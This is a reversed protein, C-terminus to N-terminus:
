IQDNNLVNEIIKLQAYPSYKKAIKKYCNNRITTRNYKSFKLWSFLTKKLSYFDDYFYFDGTLGREIIEVEPAQKSLDDHTIVPTGFTVSHIAALGVHGPSAFVDAYYIFKSTIEEAYCEGFLTIKEQLNNQDIFKRLEPKIEGEGIIFVNCFIGESNLELVCEILKDVRKRYSLRGIFLIVPYENDFYERYPNKNNVEIRSILRLHSEYDLSNYIVHLKECPFGEEIMYKKAREGYLLVGDSLKFFLKKIIKKLYGEDGYWAHSWLYIKKKLIQNIVLILWTSLNYYEGLIIYKKYDKFLLSLAGKQWKIPGILHINNLKGKFGSLSTVDMEKVGKMSDGFYFDVDLEKDLLSFIAGRYHQAFNYILCIENKMLM